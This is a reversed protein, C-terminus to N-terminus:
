EDGHRNEPLYGGMARAFADGEPTRWNSHAPSLGAQSASMFLLRAVGRNRFEPPVVIDLIERSGDERPADLEMWGVEGVGPMIASIVFCGDKRPAAKGDYVVSCHDSTFAAVEKSTVPVRKAARVVRVMALTSDVPGHGAVDGLVSLTGETVRSQKLTNVLASTQEAELGLRECHSRIIGEQIPTITVVKRTILSGRAAAFLRLDHWDQQTITDGLSTNLAEIVAAAAPRTNCAM